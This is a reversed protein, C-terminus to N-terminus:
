VKAAGYGTGVRGVYVFHDGRNVGVLLSRFDGNTTAYGGIVVEHGLEQAIQDRGHGVGNMGDQGIIANLESIPGTISIGELVDEVPDAIVVADLMAERLYLMGPGFPCTSRIFRVM